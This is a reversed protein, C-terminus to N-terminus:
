KTVTRSGIIVAVVRRNLARGEVTKNSAVPDDWSYGKATLRGADIGYDSTLSTKVSEARAQSLRDNLKRSGTSDTYGKIEATANPFEKLKDAVKAIEPQYQKKIISKNTDFFVRLELKLDETLQEPAPQEVVPVPAPMPAPPVEVPAPAVYPRKHGGLTVQLGTLAKYDTLSHDTNEVARGEVRFALADNIRYFAGLGLNVITDTSKYSSGYKLKQQGAGVLVYPKFRGDYDGTIFDSNLLFNGEISHASGNPRTALGPIKASNRTDNYEAEVALSPTLEYGIAFAGVVDNQPQFGLADSKRSKGDFWQYGVLPTLTLGLGTYEAHAAISLPAAVIVALAIRNLKM